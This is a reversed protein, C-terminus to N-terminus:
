VRWELRVADPDFGRSRRPRTSPLVTIHLLARVVERQQEVTLADWRADAGKGVLNAVVPSVGAVRARREADAIKPELKAETRALTNASM